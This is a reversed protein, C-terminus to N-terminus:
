FAPAGPREPEIREAALAAEGYAAYPRRAPESTPTPDAHPELAGQTTVTTLVQEARDLTLRVAGFRGVAFGARYGHLHLQEVAQVGADVDSTDAPSVLAHLEEQWEWGLDRLVARAEAQEWGSRALLGHQPDTDFVVHPNSTVM